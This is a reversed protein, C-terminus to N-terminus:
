ATKTKAVAHARSGLERRAALVATAALALLLALQGWIVLNGVVHTGLDWEGFLPHTNIRWAQAPGLVKYAGYVPLLAWEMVAPVHPAAAEPLHLRGVVAGWRSHPSAVVGDVVLGRARVFPTFAGKELSDQISLICAPSASGNPGAVWAVMGPGMQFPMMMAHDKAWSLKQAALSWSSHVAPEAPGSAAASALAACAGSADESVPLYHTASLQLQLTRKNYGFAELMTLTKYPAMMAPDRHSFFYVEEYALQGDWGVALVRDGHRLETM